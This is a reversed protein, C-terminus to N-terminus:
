YSVRRWLRLNLFMLILLLPFIAIDFQQIGCVWVIFTLFISFLFVLPLFKPIKNKIVFPLYIFYLPNCWLLNFNMKTEPHFSFVSLGFVVTGLIAIFLFPIFTTIRNQWFIIVLFLLSFVLFPSYWWVSKKEPETVLNLLHEEKVLYGEDTMAQAVEAYLYDPLFMRKYSDSKKDITNGLGLNIGLRLWLNQKLYSAILQRNTESIEKKEFKIGIEELLDRIETACNKELFSYRYNRNEPLYRFELRSIIAEKQEDTLQLVQEIISRNDYTYDSIFGSVYQKGLCYELTGKAFKLAFNSTGFSFLGFNYIVDFGQEYDTVRIASHGFVSYVENGPACTLLTIERSDNGFCFISPLFFFLFFLKKM